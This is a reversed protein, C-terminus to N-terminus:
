EDDQAKENKELYIADDKLTIRKERYLNGVAKKFNKKSMQLQEKIEEPSSKDNLHLVGDNSELRNILRRTLSNISKKFSQAELAVDIKGDERIKKIYGDVVQGEKLEQFVENRYLLGEFEEEILVSFGLPSEHGIILKVKDGENM